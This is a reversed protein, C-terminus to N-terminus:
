PPASTAGPGPYCGGLASATTNGAAYLGEIATGDPRLVEGDVSIVLGGNTGIDGPVLALAFFPPKSVEALCPNPMRPDGYYRDYPNGGKGFDEDVGARAMGNFRQLTEALSTAPVGIDDALQGISPARTLFGSEVWNTPMRQFPLHTAYVNQRWARSDFIM